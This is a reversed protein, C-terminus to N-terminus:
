ALDQIAMLYRSIERQMALVEHRRRADSLYDPHARKTRMRQDLADAERQLLRSYLARTSRADDRDYWSSDDTPPPTTTRRRRPSRSRSRSRRSRRTTLPPREERDTGERRTTPRRVPTPEPRPPSKMEKQAVRFKHPLVPATKVAKVELMSESTVKLLGIDNGFDPPEQWEMHECFAAYSAADVSYIAGDKGGHDPTRGERKQHTYVADRSTHHFGCQCYLLCLHQKVHIRVRRRSYTQATKCLKCRRQEGEGEISDDILKQTSSTLWNLL